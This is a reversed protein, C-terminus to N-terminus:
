LRRALSQPNIPSCMSRNPAAVLLHAIAHLGGKWGNLWGVTRGLVWGGSDTDVLLETFSVNAELIHLLQFGLCTGHVPFVDGTPLCSHPVPPLRAASSLDGAQGAAGAQSHGGGVCLLLGWGRAGAVWVGVCARCGGVWERFGGGGGGGGGGQVWGGARGGVWGGVV